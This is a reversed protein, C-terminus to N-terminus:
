HSSNQTKLAELLQKNQEQLYSLQSQIIEDIKQRLARNDEILKKLYENTIALEPGLPIDADEDSFIAIVPIGYLVALAEARALTLKTQGSELRSYSAQTINLHEAVKEQSLGKLIRHRRINLNM